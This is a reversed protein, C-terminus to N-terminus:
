PQKKNHRAAEEDLMATEDRLNQELLEKETAWGYPMERLDEGTVDDVGEPIPSHGIAAQTALFLEHEAIWIGPRVSRDWTILQATLHRYLAIGKEFTELSQEKITEPKEIGFCHFFIAKHMGAHKLPVITERYLEYIEELLDLRRAETSDAKSMVPERRQPAHQGSRGSQRERGQSERGGTREEEEDTDDAITCIAKLSARRLYSFVAAYDIHTLEEVPIPKTTQDNDKRTRVVACEVTSKIYQDGYWLITICGVRGQHFPTPHQTCAIGARALHPVTADRTASMSSYRKRFFNTSDTDPNTMEAQAKALAHMLDGVQASYEVAVVKAPLFEIQIDDQM